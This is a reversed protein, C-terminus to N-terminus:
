KFENGKRQVVINGRIVKIIAFCREVKLAVIVNNPGEFTVKLLSIKCTGTYILALLMLLCLIYQIVFHRSLKLNQTEVQDISPYHEPYLSRGTQRYLCQLVTAPPLRRCQPHSLFFVALM